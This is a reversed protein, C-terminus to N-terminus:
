GRYPSWLITGTGTAMNAYVQQIGSCDCRWMGNAASSTVGTASGVPVMLLAVKTTGGDNSGSITLVGSAAVSNMQVCVGTALGDEAGTIMISDSAILDKSKWSM